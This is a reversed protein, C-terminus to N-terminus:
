LYQWWIERKKETQKNIMYNLVYVNDVTEMGIRFSMQNPPIWVM